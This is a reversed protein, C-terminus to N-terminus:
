RVIKKAIGLMSKPDKKFADLILDLENITHMDSKSVHDIVSDYLGHVDLASDEVTNMFMNYEVMIPILNSKINKLQTHLKKLQMSKSPLTNSLDTILTHLSAGTIVVKVLADSQAQVLVNEEITEVEGGQIFCTRIIEQAGKDSTAISANVLRSYYHGDKVNYYKRVGDHFGTIVYYKPENTKKNQDQTKM